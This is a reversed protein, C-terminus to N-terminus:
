PMEKILCTALGVGPSTYDCADTKAKKIEKVM